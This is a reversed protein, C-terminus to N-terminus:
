KRRRFILVAAAGLGALAFTAPEPVQNIVVGGTVGGVTQSQWNAMVFASAPDTPQPVIYGFLGSKGILGTNNVNLAAEEYTSGFNIDWVRIQLTLSAGPGATQFTRSGGQWTGVASSTSVRLRAPGASLPILAGEAAGSVGYYLQVQINTGSALGGPNPSTAGFRIFRDQSTGLTVTDNLFTVTGQAFAGLSAVSMLTTLILKKM